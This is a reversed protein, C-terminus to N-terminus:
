NKGGLKGLTNLPFNLAVRVRASNQSVLLGGLLTKLGSNQNGALQGLAIFGRLADALKVAHDSDLATLTITGAVTAAAADNIDITGVVNKISAATSALPAAAPANTLADTADGAFWFMEELGIDNLLASMTADSLISKDANTRTDLAAKLSPLSGVAIENDTLFAIGGNVDGTKPNQVMFATTGDYQVEVPASKSRIYSVIADQNFQGAVILVGENGNQAKGPGAGVLYTVDRAPDIGTKAIFAALGSGIEKKQQLEAYISSKVLRQVNVGFVFHYDSPINNLAPLSQASAKVSFNTCLALLAGASAIGLMVMITIAVMNRCKM